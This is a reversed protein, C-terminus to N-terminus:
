APILHLKFAIVDAVVRFERTYTVDPMIFKALIDHGNEGTDHGITGFLRETLFLGLSSNCTSM